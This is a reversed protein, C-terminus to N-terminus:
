PMLGVCGPPLNPFWAEHGTGVWLDAQGATEPCVFCTRWRGQRYGDSCASVVAAENPYVGAFFPGDAPAAVANPAGLAIAAGVATIAAAGLSFKRLM